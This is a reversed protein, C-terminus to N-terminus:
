RPSYAGTIQAHDIIHGDMAKMLENLMFGNKLGTELDLAFVKLTYIHEGNPPSPGGYGTAEEKSLDSACSHWSNMGQIIDKSTVSENEELSVRNLDTVLWHIWTFGSVPVADYDDLIVAFSVTGKPPDIIEFPLSFSPMGGPSFHDGKSGYKDLIRGDVIGKSVVRM